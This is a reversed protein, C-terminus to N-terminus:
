LRLWRRLREIDTRFLSGVERFAREEEDTRHRASLWGWWALAAASWAAGLLAALLLILWAALGAPKEAVSPEDVVQVAAATVGLGAQTWADFDGWRKLTDPFTTGTKIIYLRKM